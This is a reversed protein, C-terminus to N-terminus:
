FSESIRDLFDCRDRPDLGDDLEDGTLIASTIFSLFFEVLEKRVFALDLTHGLLLEIIDCSNEVLDLFLSPNMRIWISISQELYM